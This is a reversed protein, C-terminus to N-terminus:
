GFRRNARVRENLTERVDELDAAVILDFWVNKYQEQIAAIMVNVQDPRAIVTTALSTDPPLLDILDSRTTVMPRFTNWYAQATQFFWSLELGPALVIMHYDAQGQIPGPGAAETEDPASLGTYGGGMVELSPVSKYVPPIAALLNIAPSNAGNYYYDDEKWLCIGFFWPPAERAIWEFMAVTAQAQSEETYPPYRTDQQWRSGDRYPWIGGETGLVPIAQTGFLDACRDNFMVGMALLGNPDGEPTLSTGGYVSRGSDNGQSIPDYPYEFHWGGERANQAEPPRASRPGGGAQEQYFHNLIYPHTAAYAGNALVNRFREYRYEAYYNLLADTWAVSAYKPHVSEALSIFGPYGGLSIVFEAFVLWNDALPRIINDMDRWDPDTGLPWEVDLNPENYFEFWKVGVRAYALIQDRMTNDMPRAGWRGRYPRLVPTVNLELFRQSDDIYEDQSAILKVWGMQPRTWREFYLPTILIRQVHLGRPNRSWQFDSLRM